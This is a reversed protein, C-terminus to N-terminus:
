KLLGPNGYKAKLGQLLKPLTGEFKKAIMPVDACKEPNRKGYFRM